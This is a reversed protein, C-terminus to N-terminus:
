GFNEETKGAQSSTTLISRWHSNALVSKAHLHSLLLFFGALDGNVTVYGQAAAHSLRDLFGYLSSWFEHLKLKGFNAPFAVHCVENMLCAVIKCLRSLSSGRFNIISRVQKFDNKLFVYAKPCCTRRESVGHTGSKLQCPTADFAPKAIVSYPHSAPECCVDSDVFM